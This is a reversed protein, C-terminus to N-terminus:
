LVKNFLKIKMCLSDLETSAETKLSFCYGIFTIAEQVLSSPATHEKRRKSGTKNGFM